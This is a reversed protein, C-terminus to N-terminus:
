PGSKHKCSRAKIIIWLVVSSCFLGSGYSLKLRLRNIECRLFVFATILIIDRIEKSSKISKNIRRRYKAITNRNFHEVESITNLVSVTEDESLAFLRQVTEAEPHTFYSEIDDRLKRIDERSVTPAISGVRTQFFLEFDPNSLSEHLVNLMSAKHEASIQERTQDLLDSVILLPLVTAAIQKLEWNM